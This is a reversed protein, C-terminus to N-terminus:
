ACFASVYEAIPEIDSIFAPTDLNCINIRGNHPCIVKYLINGKKYHDDDMLYLIQTQPDEHIVFQFPLFGKTFFVFAEIYDVFLGSPLEKYSKVMQLTFFSNDTNPYFGCFKYGDIKVIYTDNELNETIEAIGSIGINNLFKTLNKQLVSTEIRKNM